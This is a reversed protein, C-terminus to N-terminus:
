VQWDMIQDPLEDHPVEATPMSLKLQCAERSVENRLASALSILRGTSVDSFDRKALEAEVRRLDAGLSEWRRQQSVGCREVLAETEIARLNQIPFQFKRSWQILIPKSVQLKESIAAFSLGQARLEIFRNITEQDYM